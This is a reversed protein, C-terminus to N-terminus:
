RRRTLKRLAVNVRRRVHQTRRTATRVARRLYSYRGGYRYEVPAAYDVGRGGAQVVTRLGRRILRITNRLRRTRDTFGFNRRRAVAVIEEGVAEVAEDTAGAGVIRLTRNLRRRSRSMAPVDIRLGM